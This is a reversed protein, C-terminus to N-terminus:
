QTRSNLQLVNSFHLNRFGYGVLPKPLASQGRAAPKGSRGVQRLRSAYVYRAGDDSATASKRTDGRTNDRIGSYGPLRQPQFEVPMETLDFAFIVLAGFEVGVTSKAFFILTLSL